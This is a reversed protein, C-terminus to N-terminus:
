PKREEAQARSPDLRLMLDRLGCTCFPDIDVDPDLPVKHRRCGVEHYKYKSMDNLAEQLREVEGRFEDREARTAVLDSWICDGEHSEARLQLLEACRAKWKATERREVKLEAFAVRLRAETRDCMDCAYPEDNGEDRRRRVPGGPRWPCAGSHVGFARMGDGCTCRDSTM